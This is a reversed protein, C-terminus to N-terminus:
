RTVQYESFRFEVRVDGPLKSEVLAAQPLSFGEVNGYSVEIHTEITDARASDIKSDLVAPFYGKEGRQFQPRMTATTHQEAFAVEELAYDKNLTEFVVPDSRVTIHYGGDIPELRYDQKTSPLPPGFAFMSWEQLFEGLMQEVRGAAAGIRRATEEDPPAGDFQRSVEPPGGAKVTVEFHMEKLTPLLQERAADDIKMSRLAADWDVRAQCRFGSLGEKHLDYYADRMKAVLQDDATTQACAPAVPWAFVSLLAALLLRRQARRMHGRFNAGYLLLSRVAVTLM